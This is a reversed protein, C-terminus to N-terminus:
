WQGALSGDKRTVIRAGQAQAIGIWDSSLAICVPGESGLEGTWRLAGANDYLQAEASPTTGASTEVVVLVGQDDAALSTPRGDLRVTSIVRPPDEWHVRALGWGESSATSLWREGPLGDDSVPERLEAGRPLSRPSGGTDVREIPSFSGRLLFTGDDLEGLVWPTGAGLDAISLPPGPTLPLRELSQVHSAGSNLPAWLGAPETVTPFLQRVDGAAVGPLELPVLSGDTAVMMLGPEGQLGTLIRGDSLASVWVPRQALLREATQGPRWRTLGDEGIGLLADGQFAACSRTPVDATYPPPVPNVFTAAERSEAGCAVALALPLCQVPLSM